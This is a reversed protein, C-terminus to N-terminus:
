AYGRQIAAFATCVDKDDIFELLLADAKKHNVLEDGSEVLANLKATLEQTTMVVTSDFPKRRSCSRGRRDWLVKGGPEYGMTISEIFHDGDEHNGM